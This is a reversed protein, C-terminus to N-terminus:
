FIVLRSRLPPDIPNGPFPPSPPGVAIVRFRESVRVLMKQMEARAEDGALSISSLPLTNPQLHTLSHILPHTLSHILPHTLTHTPSHTYSHISAIRSITRPGATLDLALKCLLTLVLTVMEILILARMVCADTMDVDTIAVVVVAVMIVLVM